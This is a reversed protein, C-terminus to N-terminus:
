EHTTRSVLSSSPQPAHFRSLYLPVIVRASQPTIGLHTCGLAHSSVINDYHLLTVQDKTLFPAPLLQAFTAIMNALAFPLPLLAPKRHTISCIHQLIQKFSFVEDGGLEYINGMAETKQIVRVVADAVDMVYIPQFKADGGGILPLFPAFQAMRAFQNYFNDEAGFIVSPRLITANPFAKHAAQEGAYKTQAYVSNSARDVGLASIHVFRQVNLKTATEALAHAADTHITSFRQAGSEYLLGILNVVAYSGEIWDALHSTDKVDGYVCGIQGVEGQTKLPSAAVVDRTIVRIRYGQRALASVVYRGVFGTGGFITILKDRTSANM